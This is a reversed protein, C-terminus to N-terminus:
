ANTSKTMFEGSQVEGVCIERELAGGGDVEGRSGAGFASIMELPSGTLEQGHGYGGNMIKHGPVGYRHVRAMAPWPAVMLGKKGPSGSGGCVRAGDSRSPCGLNATGTRDVM